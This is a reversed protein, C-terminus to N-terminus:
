DSSWINVQGGLIGKDSPQMVMIENEGLKVRTKSQWRFRKRDKDWTELIIKKGKRLMEAKHVM